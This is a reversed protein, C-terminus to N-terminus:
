ACRPHAPHSEQDTHGELHRDVEQTRAIAAGSYQGDGEGQGKGEQYAKRPDQFEKERGGHGVVKPKAHQGREDKDHGHYGKGVVQAPGHGPKDQQGAVKHDKDRLKDADKICLATTWQQAKQRSYEEIKGDEAKDLSANPDRPHHTGRGNRHDHEQHHEVGDFCGQDLLEPLNGVHATEALHQLCLFARALDADQDPLPCDVEDARVGGQDAGPLLSTRIGEVGHPGDDAVSWLRHVNGVVAEIRGFQGVKLFPVGRGVARM